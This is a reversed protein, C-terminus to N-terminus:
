PNAELYEHRIPVILVHLEVSPYFHSATHALTGCSLHSMWTLDVELKELTYM